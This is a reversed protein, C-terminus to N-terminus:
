MILTWSQILTSTVPLSTEKRTKTSQSSPMKGFRTANYQLKMFSERFVNWKNYEKLGVAGSALM